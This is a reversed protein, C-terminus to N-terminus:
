VLGLQRLLGLLDPYSFHEVIRGGDIRELNMGSLVFPRNTPPRGLWQGTHTGTFSWRFAILDDGAVLEHIEMRLDAVGAHHGAVRRKFGDLGVQEEAKAVSRDAVDAAFLEDLAELRRGNFAEDYVRRLQDGISESSM